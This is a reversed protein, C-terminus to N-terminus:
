RQTHLHPQSMTPDRSAKWWVLNQLAAKHLVSGNLYLRRDKFLRSITVWGKTVIGRWWALPLSLRAVQLDSTTLNTWLQPNWSQANKPKWNQFHESNKHLIQFYGSIVRLSELVKTKELLQTKKPDLVISHLAHSRSETSLQRPYPASGWRLLCCSHEVATSVTLLFYIDIFLGVYVTYIYNCM